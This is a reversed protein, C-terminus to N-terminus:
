AGTMGDRRLARLLFIALSGAIVAATVATGVGAGLLGFDRVLLVGGSFTLLAGALQAAFIADPRELAKLAVYGGGALAELIVAAGLYPVLWAFQAYAGGYLLRIGWRAVALLALVYVIALILNLASLRPLVRRVYADGLAARRTSLWPLFLQGLAAVVKQLPFVLIQLARFVGAAELGGLLGVVPLYATSSLWNVLASGTAWRGYAWHDRLVERLQVERSRAGSHLRRWVTVSAFISAAAMALLAGAPSLQGTSALVWLVVGVGAAYMASTRLALRPQMEVYCEQRVLWFLLIAPTAIALALLAPVLPPSWHQAIVVGVAVVVVFILGLGVHLLAAARFYAPRRNRYRAPGVVGLPELLLASHFGSLFLFAAFALAFVGYADAPLTRVLLLNLGLSTGSVVAQDAVSYGVRPGWIVM